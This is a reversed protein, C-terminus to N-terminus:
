GIPRGFPLEDVWTGLFEEAIACAGLVAGDDHALCRRTLDGLTAAVESGERAALPGSTTLFDPLVTKGARGAVALARPTLALNGTPVLVEAKVTALADHNILGAKSGFFLVDVDAALADAGTAAVDAGVAELAEHLADGAGGDFEIAVRAGDLTRAAGASAVIGDALAQPQAAVVSGLAALESDGMGKGPGLALSGSTVQERLEECFADLAAVRADGEANIAASAGSVQVGLLAWSYTRSRALARTSDVLVKRACRVVGDAREADPFDTLVFADTSALRQITPDSVCDTQWRPVGPYALALFAPPGTRVLGGFRECRARARRGPVKRSLRHLFVM